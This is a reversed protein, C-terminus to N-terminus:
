ASDISSENKRDYFKKITIRYNILEELFFYWLLILIIINLKM